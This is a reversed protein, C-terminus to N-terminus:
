ETIIEIKPDENKLKLNEDFLEDISFTMNITYDDIQKIWDHKGRISKIKTDFKIQNSFKMKMMKMVSIMQEATAKEEETNNGAAKLEKELGKSFKQPSFYETDLTLKKGDWITKESNTANIINSNNSVKYFDKLEQQSIKDFKLSFGIMEKGNYNSKIFMKKFMRISDSDESIKEGKKAAEEKTFEYMNKWEKPFMELEKMKSDSSTSDMSKTFDLFEKMDIDMLMSTTNDKHYTTVSNISCSTLTLLPIILWILYKKIM